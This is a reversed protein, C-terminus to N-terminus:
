ASLMAIDAKRRRSAAYGLAGFGLAMMGWTSTEPIPAISTTDTFM